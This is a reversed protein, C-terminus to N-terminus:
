KLKKLNAPRIIYTKVLSGHKIEVLYAKGRMGVVIGVLGQIVKPFSPNLSHERLIAVKDGKKFEQFYLSLQLKGKLRTPKRKLM